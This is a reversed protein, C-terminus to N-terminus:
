TIQASCVVTHKEEDISCEPHSINKISRKRAHKSADCVEGYAAGTLLYQSDNVKQISAISCEGFLINQEESHRVLERLWEAFLSEINKADVVMKIREKDKLHESDGMLSFLARGGDLFADIAITGESRLEIGGKNETLTYPM